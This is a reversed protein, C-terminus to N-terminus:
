DLELLNFNIIEEFEYGLTLDLYRRRESDNWVDNFLIEHVKHGNAAEDPTKLVKDWHTHNLTAKSLNPMSPRSFTFKLHPNCDIRKINNEWANNLKPPPQVQKHINLQLKRDCLKCLCTEPTLFYSKIRSPYDPKKYCYCFLAVNIQDESHKILTSAQSIQHRAAYLASLSQKKNLVQQTSRKTHEM